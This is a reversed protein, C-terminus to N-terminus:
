EAQVSERLLEDIIEKTRVLAKLLKKIEKYYEVTLYEVNQNFAIVNEVEKWEEEGPCSHADYALKEENVGYSCIHIQITRELPLADIYKYYPIGRNLATIRAHAIDFLFFIDNEYVINKIFDSDTVWRYAETPYYNNNEIAIKVNQGVLGRIKAFNDLSFQLMEDKSYQKGGPWFINRKLIRRSCSSAAHFTILKLDPKLRIIEQLYRLDNDGLEHIPQMHCHFLEQGEFNANISEDRCELCDSNSMIKYAHNRSDFLHSIPTAIEIM